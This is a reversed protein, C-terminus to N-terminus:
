TTCTHKKVCTKRLAQLWTRMQRHVSLTWQAMGPSFMTGCVMEGLGVPFVDAEAVVYAFRYAKGLQRRVAFDAERSCLRVAALHRSQLSLPDVGFRAAAMENMLLCEVMTIDGCSATHDLVSAVDVGPVRLLREVMTLHGRVAAMFVAQNGRATVDVGPVLLLRSVM